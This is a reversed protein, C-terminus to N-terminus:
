SWRRWRNVGACIMWRTGHFDLGFKRLGRISTDGLRRLHPPLPLADLVHPTVGLEPRRLLEGAFRPLYSTHGLTNENLFAVNM